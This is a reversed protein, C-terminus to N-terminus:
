VMSRMALWTFLQRRGVKLKVLFGNPPEQMKGAFWPSIPQDQRVACSRVAISGQQDRQCICECRASDSDESVIKGKALFTLM